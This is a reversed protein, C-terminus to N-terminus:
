AQETPARSKRHVPKKTPKKTDTFFVLLKTEQMRIIRMEDYSTVCKM